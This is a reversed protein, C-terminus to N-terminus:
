MITFGDLCARLSSCGELVLSLFDSGISSGLLKDVAAEAPSSVAVGDSVELRSVIRVAVVVGSVVGSTVGPSVPLRKESAPFRGTVACEECSRVSTFVNLLEM